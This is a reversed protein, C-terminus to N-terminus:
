CLGALFFVQDHHARPPSLPLTLSTLSTLSRHIANLCLGELM